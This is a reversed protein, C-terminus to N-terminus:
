DIRNRQDTKAIRDVDCISPDSAIPIQEKLSGLEMDYEISGPRQWIHKGERHTLMDDHFEVDPVSLGAAVSADRCSMMDSEDGLFVM